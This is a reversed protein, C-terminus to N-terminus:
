SRLFDSVAAAARSPRGTRTEARDAWTMVRLGANVGLWRLPEPEWAPSHHGVWPLRVLESDNGTILDALTRGALNTTSLGDGVYGGAWGVGTAPDLGVSACWDRAIGIPGGWTHTVTVDELIQFLEGLTSRLASFVGPVRDFRPDVASGFHYPAGRGGFVLRNDATRQGYIILHRLDSFTPRGALGVQEIVDDPLPATAVVLSYVPVVARENGPLQPTYGETARIVHRATVTGRPTVLRGPELTLVPTKEYITVGRSRLVEALGRALRAPHISACHPTFVGGLLNTAQGYERAEEAPLLRLDSEDFGFVRAEHVEEKARQMQVPSRVFQITGGKAWHCDIGEEASVKGVEDVTQQMARYMAIASERGAMRELKTLSAPFLASCWGGNRGSAGFGAIERECLVVNLSPDAKNLYYATWMGTLGAGVIAVDAQVDTELAPGPELSGPVTDHWFSLRRYADAETM